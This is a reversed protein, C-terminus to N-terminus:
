RNYGLVANHVYTSLYIPYLYLRLYLHISIHVYVLIVRYTGLLSSCESRYVARNLLSSSCYTWILISHFIFLNMAMDCLSQIISYFLWGVTIFVQFIQLYQITKLFFIPSLCPKNQTTESAKWRQTTKGLTHSQLTHIQCM